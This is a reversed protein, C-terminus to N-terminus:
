VLALFCSNHIFNLIMCSYIVLTFTTVWSAVLCFLFFSAVLCYNVVTSYRFICRFNCDVLWWFWVNRSDVAKVSTYVLPMRGYVSTFINVCDSRRESHGGLSSIGTSGIEYIKGTVFVFDVFNVDYVNKDFFFCWVCTDEKYPHCTNVHNLVLSPLTQNTNGHHVVYFRVNAHFKM